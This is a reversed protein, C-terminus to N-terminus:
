GTESSEGSVDQPDFCSKDGPGPAPFRGSTCERLNARLEMRMTEITRKVRDVAAEQGNALLEEAPIASAAKLAIRGTMRPYDRSPPWIDHMGEIAVPVVAAGTKKALLTFGPKFRGLAGDRSRTGEPFMLVCRGANLEAVAARLAKGGGKERELPIANLFRIMWGFPKFKFLTDRALFACPRDWVMSGVLPPDYHSQHNAVYILPGEAPVNKQGAYQVGYLLRFFLFVGHRAFIWALLMKWRSMGPARRRFQLAKM